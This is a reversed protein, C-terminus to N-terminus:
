FTEAVEAWNLQSISCSSFSLTMVGEYIVSPPSWYNLIKVSGDTTNNLLPVFADCPNSYPRVISTVITKNSKHPFRASLVQRFFKWKRIRTLSTLSWLKNAYNEQYVGAALCRHLEYNRIYNNKLQKLPLSPRLPLAITEHSPHWPDRVLKKYNILQSSLSHGQDRCDSRKEFGTM